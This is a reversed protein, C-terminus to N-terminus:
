YFCPGFIATGIRVINAGEEVAIEFDSTMGMSLFAMEVGPFSISKIEEALERLGRFVFRIQAPNAGYPAITMLGQVCLNPFRSINELLSFVEERRFGSKTEEGALNVQLLVPLSRGKGALLNQLKEALPVRDLSHLLVIKDLIFKAKNSQLRGIFHWRVQKGLAAYKPLFEQVRNEGFDEIGAARAEEIIPVPIGKTVAIVKIEEGLRGTRAAARELREQLQQIREKIKSGEQGM